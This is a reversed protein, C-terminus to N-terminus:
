PVANQRKRRSLKNLLNLANPEEKVDRTKIAGEKEAKSFLEEGRDTRVITFTWKDLGVGGVSIDALESSFDECSRCGRRTYQKAESLSTTHNGSDTTIIMKGKINMKRIRVPDLHMTERIHKEMLGEYTFCESCMLGILFRIPNTYKRLGAMQMKRVARIQCPTGVFAIRESKQKVMLPLAFVSPSYFYRTGSCNLIEAPTTVLKPVPLFPKETDTGSVIAAEILGKTLAYSLLATVVGGDQSANVTKDDQAQAIVLRRYVGFQDEANRERKFVTKELEPLSWDYKPCVKPCIGCAECKKVITPEEESYELCKFPCAIVCTGCGQCRGPRIVKAALSEEFTIRGSTAGSQM